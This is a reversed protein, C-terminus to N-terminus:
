QSEAYAKAAETYAEAVTIDRKLALAKMKKHMRAPVRIAIVKPGNTPEKEEGQSPM